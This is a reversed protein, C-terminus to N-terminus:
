TNSEFSNHYTHFIKCIENMQVAYFKICKVVFQMRSALILRWFYNIVRRITSIYIVNKKLCDYTSYLNYMFTARFNESTIVFGHLQWRFTIAGSRVIKVIASVLQFIKISNDNVCALTRHYQRNILM